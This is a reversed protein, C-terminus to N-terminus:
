PVNEALSIGGIALVEQVPVVVDVLPPGLKFNEALRVSSLAPFTDPLMVKVPEAQMDVVFTVPGCIPFRIVRVLSATTSREPMEESALDM